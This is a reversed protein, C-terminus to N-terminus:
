LLRIISHKITQASGFTHLVRLDLGSTSITISTGDSLVTVSSTSSSVRVVAVENYTAPAGSGSLSVTVLYNGDGSPFYDITTTTNNAVVNENRRTAFIGGMVRRNNTYDGAVSSTGILAHGDDTIRMREDPPSSSGGIGQVGFILTGGAGSTANPNEVSITASAYTELNPFFGMRAVNSSSATSTNAIAFATGSSGHAGATMLGNAAVFASSNVNIGANVRGSTDIFVRDINNTLIAVPSNTSAGFKAVGSAVFLNSTSTGDTHSFGGSLGANNSIQVRTGPSSTGVGIQGTTTFRIREAPSSGTAFLVELADFRLNTYASTSRNYTQFIGSAPVFEFGNAGSNSVVLRHQPSTTGIGVNGGNQLRMIEDGAGEAGGNTFMLNGAGTSFTHQIVSGSSNGYIFLRPNNTGDYM